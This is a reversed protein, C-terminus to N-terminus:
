GLLKLLCVVILHSINTRAVYFSRLAELAAESKCGFMFNVQALEGLLQVQSDTVDDPLPREDLQPSFSMGTRWEPELLRSEMSGALRTGLFDPDGTISKVFLSFSLDRGPRLLLPFSILPQPITFSAELDPVYDTIDQFMDDIAEGINSVLGSILDEVSLRLNDEIIELGAQSALVHSHLCICRTTRELYLKSISVYTVYGASTQIL